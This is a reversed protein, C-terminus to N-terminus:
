THRRLRQDGIARDGAYRRTLEWKETFDDRKFFTATCLKILSNTQIEESHKYNQIQQKRM